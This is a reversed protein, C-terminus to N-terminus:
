SLICFNNQIVEMILSFHKSVMPTFKRLHALSFNQLDYILVNSNSVEEQFRVEILNLCHAFYDYPNQQASLTNYKTITVRNGEKTLKPLPIVYRYNLADSM